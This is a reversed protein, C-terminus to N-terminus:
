DPMGGVIETIEQTIKSQRARNYSLSLKAIIEEANKTANEMAIMRAQLESTNAEALATYVLGKIYHPVLSDFVEAPNPEFLFSQFKGAEQRSNKFFHEPTLPLLHVYVPEQKLATEAKTFILGVEGYAGELYKKIIIDAIDHARFFTPDMVPFQFEPDMDFKERGARNRGMFGAMLVAPNDGGAKERLFKIINYNYGGAMGKDGGMVVYLPRKASEPPATFVSDALNMRDNLIDAMIAEVDNFFPRVGESKKKARKSKSASILYM